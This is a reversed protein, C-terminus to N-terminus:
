ATKQIFLHDQSQLLPQQPQFFKAHVDRTIEEMQPREYQNVAPYLMIMWVVQMFREFDSVWFKIESTYSSLEAGPLSSEATINEQLALLSQTNVRNFYRRCYNNYLWSTTLPNDSFRSMVVSHIVGKPALLENYINTLLPLWKKMPLCYLSHHLFIADAKQGNLQIKQFARIYNLDLFAEYNEMVPYVNSYFHRRLREKVQNLAASDNDM